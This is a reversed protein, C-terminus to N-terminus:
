VLIRAFETITSVRVPATGYYDGDLQVAREGAVEIETGRLLMVQDERCPRGALVDAIVKLYAMRGTATICFIDLQPGSLDAGPLLVVNGGYRSINSVIASHCAVERGDVRLTFRDRPWGGLCRLASLLYAGKGLLRKEKMQVRRVIEGDLGIGAMLLFRRSEGDATTITGVTLPRTTGAAIRRIGDAISGIGLELALVNATGVPLVALVAREPTLANVVANVTGDGGAVIVLPREAAAEIGACVKQADAPGTVTLCEVSVGVGQLSALIEDHLARSYSGSLPNILLYSSM